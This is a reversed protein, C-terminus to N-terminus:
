RRNHRQQLFRKSWDGVPLKMSLESDAGTAKVPQLPKPAASKSPEKPKSLEAEIRAIRRGMQAPTLDAFEAALDPDSGIHNLVAAPDDADRVADFLPAPRGYQDFLPGAERAITQLSTKFSDFRAAGDKAISNATETVREIKAIEKALAIPDAQHSQPEQPQEYQSLRQMAEQARREAEQARAEAQYRTATIRDVRRQLSKVTKDRPDEPTEDPKTAVTEPNVAEPNADTDTAQNQTEAVPSVNNELDM